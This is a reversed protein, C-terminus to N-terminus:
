ETCLKTPCLSFIASLHFFTQPSYLLLFLLCESFLPLHFCDFVAYLLDIILCFSSYFLAVCHDSFLTIWLQSFHPCLGSKTQLWSLCILFILIPWLSLRCDQTLSGLRVCGCWVFVRDDRPWCGFHPLNFSSPRFLSYPSSSCVSASLWTFSIPHLVPLFSFQDLFISEFLPEQFGFILM